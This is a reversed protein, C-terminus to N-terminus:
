HQQENAYPFQINHINISMYQISLYYRICTSNNLNEFLCCFALFVIRYHYHYWIKDLISAIVQM